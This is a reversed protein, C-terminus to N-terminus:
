IRYVELFVIGQGWADAYEDQLAKRVKAIARTATTAQVDDHKVISDPGEHRWQWAVQYPVTASM